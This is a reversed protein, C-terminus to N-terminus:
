RTQIVPYQYFAFLYELQEATMAERYVAFSQLPDNKQMRAFWGTPSKPGRLGTQIPLEISWTVTNPFSYDVSGNDVALTVSGNKFIVAIAMQKDPDRYNTTHNAVSIVAVSRRITGDYGMLRVLNTAPTIEVYYEINPNKGKIGFVQMADIFRVCCILTCTDNLVPDDGFIPVNDYIKKTSNYYEALEKQDLTYQFHSVCPFVHPPLGRFVSRLLAEHANMDTNHAQIYKAVAEVSPVLEESDLNEILREYDVIELYLFFMETFFQLSGTYGEQRWAEYIMEIVKTEFQDVTDAHPNGDFTSVHDYMDMIYKAWDQVQPYKAIVDLVSKIDQFLVGDIKLPASSTSINHWETLMWLPKNTPM